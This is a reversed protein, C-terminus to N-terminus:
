LGLDIGFMDDFKVRIHSGRQCDNLTDIINQRSINIGNEQQPNISEPTFGASTLFGSLIKINRFRISVQRKFGAQTQKDFAALLCERLGSSRSGPNSFEFDDLEPHTLGLKYDLESNDCAYLNHWYDDDHENMDDDLTDDDLDNKKILSESGIAMAFQHYAVDSRVMSDLHPCTQYPHGEAPTFPELSKISHEQFLAKFPKDMLLKFFADVQLRDTADLRQYLHAFDSWFHVNEEKWPIHDSGAIFYRLAMIAENHSRAAVKPEYWKRVPMKEVHSFYDFVEHTLFSVCAGLLGQDMQSTCKMELEDRKENGYALRNLRYINRCGIKLAYTMEPHNYLPIITYPQTLAGIEIHESKKSDCM